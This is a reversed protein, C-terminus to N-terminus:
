PTPNKIHFNRLWKSIMDAMNRLVNRAATTHLESNCVSATLYSPLIVELMFTRAFSISNRCTFFFNDRNVKMSVQQIIVSVLYVIHASNPQSYHKEVIRTVHWTPVLVTHLDRTISDYFAYGFHITALTTCNKKQKKKVELSTRYLLIM